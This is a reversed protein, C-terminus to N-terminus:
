MRGAEWDGFAMFSESTRRDVAVFRGDNKEEKLGDSLFGYNSEEMGEQM